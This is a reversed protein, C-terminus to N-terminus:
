IYLDFIYFFKKKNNIINHIKVINEKDNINTINLGM